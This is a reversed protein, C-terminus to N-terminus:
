RHVCGHLRLLRVQGQWGHRIGESSRHRGAPRRCRVPRGPCRGAAMAVILRRVEAWLEISNPEFVAWTMERELTLRLVTRSEDTWEWSTALGPQISGDVPSLHTLTSYAVSCFVIPVCNATDMNLMDGSLAATFTGGRGPDAAETPTASGGGGTCAALTLALLASGSAAIVGARWRNKISMYM